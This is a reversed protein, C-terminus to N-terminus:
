AYTGPFQGFASHVWGREWSGPRTVGQHAADVLHALVDEVTGNPIASSRSLKALTLWQERTVVIELRITDSM